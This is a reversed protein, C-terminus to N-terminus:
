LSKSQTNGDFCRFMVEEVRGRYAEIHLIESKGENRSSKSVSLYTYNKQQPSPQTIEHIPETMNIADFMVVHERSWHADGDLSRERRTPSWRSPLSGRISWWYQGWALLVRIGEPMEAPHEVKRM